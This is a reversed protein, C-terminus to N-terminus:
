RHALQLVTLFQTWARKLNAVSSRKLSSKLISVDFQNVIIDILIKLNYFESQQNIHSIQRPPIIGIQHFQFGLVARKFVSKLICTCYITQLLPRHKEVFLVQVRINWVNQVQAKARHQKM